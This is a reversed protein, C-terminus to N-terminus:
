GNRENGKQAQLFNAYFAKIQRIRSLVHRIAKSMIYEIWSPLQNIANSYM